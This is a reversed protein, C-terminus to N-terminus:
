FGERIPDLDWCCNMGRERYLEEGVVKNGNLYSAKKTKTTGTFDDRTV